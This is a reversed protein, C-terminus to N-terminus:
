PGASGFQPWFHPKEANEEQKILKILVPFIKNFRYKM